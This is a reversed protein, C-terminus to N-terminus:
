DEKLIFDIQKTEPDSSAVIIKIPTGISYKKGRREGTLSFDREDFIYYDDKLDSVRVLGEIGNELEAFFGFNTVSSIIADFSEGVHERMYQAKKIDEVDRQAEMAVIEAESSKVSADRVFKDLYRARKESIGVTIFEKIIRHIALDPYRRIPSTFHCYYPFALGFHGLCEPSYKAKM